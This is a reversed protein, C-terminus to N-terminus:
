TCGRQCNHLRRNNGCGMTAVAVTGLAASYVPKGSFEQPLKAFLGNVPHRQRLGPGQPLIGESTDAEQIKGRSGRPPIVRQSGGQGLETGQATSVELRGQVLTRDEQISTAAVPFILGLPLAALPMSHLVRAASRIITMFLGALCCPVVGPGDNERLVVHAQSGDSPKALFSVNVLEAYFHHINADAAAHVHCHVWFFVAMREVMTRVRSLEVELLELVGVFVNNGLTAARCCSTNM